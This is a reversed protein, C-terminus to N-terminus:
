RRACIAWSFSCCWCSWCEPKWFIRPVTHITGNIVESQDYFPVIRVGDPLKMRAIREKVREIVQLGNEGKLMIAMGSVTEGKGDRLVAGQRPVWGVTVRAVDRVLVPVGNRAVLVIRELDEYGAGPRVGRVRTSSSRMSSSAAASIAITRAWGPLSM